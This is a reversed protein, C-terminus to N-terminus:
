NVMKKQIIIFCFEGGCTMIKGEFVGSVAGGANDLGEVPHPPVSCNSFPRFSPLEWLSGGGLYILDVINFILPLLYVKLSHFFGHAM